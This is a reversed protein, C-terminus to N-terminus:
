RAPMTSALDTGANRGSAAAKQRSPPMNRADIQAFIRNEAAEGSFGYLKKLLRV